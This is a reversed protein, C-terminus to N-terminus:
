GAIARPGAPEPRDLLEVVGAGVWAVGALLWSWASPVVLGTGAAVLAVGLGSRGSRLSVLGVLITGVAAVGQALATMPGYDARVGAAVLAVAWAIHGAVAVDVAVVGLRGAQEGVRLWAGVVACGLLAVAALALWLSEELYGPWDPPVPQSAIGIAMIAWITGGTLALLGPARSRRPPRLWADFAGRVLDVRGGFGIAAEELVALM